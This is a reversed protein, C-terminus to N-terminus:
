GFLTKSAAAPGGAPGGGNLPSGAKPGGALKKTRDRTVGTWKESWQNRFGPETAKAVAETVTLGSPYHFFKDIENEERVEGSPVYEGADNKVNKDVTQKILGTTIMKGILETVMMVDTAVEKGQSFDYLMITKMEPTVQSIEKNLTMMCLDNAMEFGPLYKKIDKKKTAPNMALYYNHGGKSIGSTMWLQQKVQKGDETELLLNLAKAKGASETGYALIVKCDYIASELPEFKSGGLKDGDSKIATDTKLSDFM